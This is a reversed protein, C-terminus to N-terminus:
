DMMSDYYAKRLCFIFIRDDDVSLNNERIGLLRYAEQIGTYNECDIMIEIATFPKNVFTRGEDINSQPRPCTCISEDVERFSGVEAGCTCDIARLAYVRDPMIFKYPYGLPELRKICDARCRNLRETMDRTMPSSKQHQRTWDCYFRGHDCDNMSELYQEETEEEDGMPFGDPTTAISESDSSFTM